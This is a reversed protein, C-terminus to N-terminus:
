HQFQAPKVTAEVLAVQTLSDGAPAPSAPCAPKSCLEAVEAITQFEKQKTALWGTFAAKERAVSEANRRLLATYHERVREFEAQIQVNEEAKRSWAAEAQRRQEAEHSDLCDQRVKADRLVESISIGAADLAMRVAAAKVDKSLARIHESEIMESVKNVTYGKRPGVVGANRYIDEMSLLELQLGAAMRASPTAAPTDVRRVHAPPAQPPPDNKSSQSNESENHGAVLNERENNRRSLSFWKSRM